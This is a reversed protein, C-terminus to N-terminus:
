TAKGTSPPSAAPSGITAELWGYHCCQCVRHFHEPAKGREGLNYCLAFSSPYKDKCYATKVDAAGCKPCTASPNYAKLKM